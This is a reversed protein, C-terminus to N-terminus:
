ESQSQERNSYGYNIVGQVGSLIKLPILFKEVKLSIIAIEKIKDDSLAQRRSLDKGVNITKVNEGEVISAKDKRGIKRDLIELTERDVAYDDPEVRGGVIM